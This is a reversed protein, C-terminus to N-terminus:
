PQIENVFMANILFCKPNRKILNTDFHKTKNKQMVGSYAAVNVPLPM